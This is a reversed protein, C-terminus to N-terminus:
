RAYLQQYEKPLMEEIRDKLMQLQKYYVTDHFSNVYVHANKPTRILFTEDIGDVSQASPSSKIKNLTKPDITSTLQQWSKQNTAAGWYKYTKNATSGQELSISDKTIKIIRYEGLDGGINSVSIFTIENPNKPVPNKEEKKNCSFCTLLLLMSFTIKLVFNKVASM